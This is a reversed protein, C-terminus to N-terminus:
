WGFFTRHNIPMLDKLFNQLRWGYKTWYLDSSIKPVSIGPKSSYNLNKVIERWLYSTNSHFVWPAFNQFKLNSLYSIAPKSIFNKFWTGWVIKSMITPVNEYTNTLTRLFKYLWYNVQLVKDTRHPWKGEVGDAYWHQPDVHINFTKDACSCSHFPLFPPLFLRKEAM